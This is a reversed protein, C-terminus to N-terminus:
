ATAHHLIEAALSNRIKANPPLNCGAARMKALHALQRRRAERLIGAFVRRAAARRRAHTSGDGCRGRGIAEDAIKRLAEYRSQPDSLCYYGLHGHAATYDILAPIAGIIALVQEAQISITTISKMTNTTIRGAVRRAQM